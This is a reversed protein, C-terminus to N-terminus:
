SVTYSHQNNNCIGTVETIIIHHQFEGFFYLEYLTYM